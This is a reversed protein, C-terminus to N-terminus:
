LQNSKARECFYNKCIEPRNDYIACSCIGSENKILHECSNPLILIFYEINDMIRTINKIKHADFYKKVGWSDDKSLVDRLFIFTKDCCTGCRRCNGM